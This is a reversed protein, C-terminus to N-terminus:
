PSLYARSWQLPMDEKEWSLAASVGIGVWCWNRSPSAMDKQPLWFSRTALLLAQPKAGDAAGQELVVPMVPRQRVICRQLFHCLSPPLPHLVEAPMLAARLGSQWKSVIVVGAVPFFQIRVTWCSISPWDRSGSCTYVGKWLGEGPM